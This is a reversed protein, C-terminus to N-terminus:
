ALSFAFGIYAAKGKVIALSGIIDSVGFTLLLIFGFFLRKSDPHKKVIGWIMLYLLYISALLMTLQWIFLLKYAIVIGVFFMPAALLFSVGFSIKTIMRNKGQIFNEYDNCFLFHAGEM